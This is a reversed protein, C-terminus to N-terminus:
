DGEGGELTAAITANAKRAIRGLAEVQRTTQEVYVPGPMSAKTVLKDIKELAEVAEKLAASHKYADCPWAKRCSNCREFYANGSMLPSGGDSVHREMTKEAAEIIQAATTADTM